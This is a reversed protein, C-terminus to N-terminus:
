FSWTVLTTAFWCILVVHEQFPSSCIRFLVWEVYVGRGWFTQPQMENQKEKPGVEEDRKSAKCTESAGM